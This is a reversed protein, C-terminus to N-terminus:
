NERVAQALSELLQALNATLRDILQKNSDQTQVAFSTITMQPALAFVSFTSGLHMKQNNEIRQALEIAMDM